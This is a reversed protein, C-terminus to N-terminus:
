LREHDISPHDDSVLLWSYKYDDDNAHDDHDDDFRDDDGDM